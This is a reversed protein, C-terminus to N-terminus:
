AAILNGSTKRQSEGSLTVPCRTKGPIYTSANAVLMSLFASGDGEPTGARCRSKEVKGPPHGASPRRSRRKATLVFENISPMASKFTWPALPKGIKGAPTARTKALMESAKPNRV